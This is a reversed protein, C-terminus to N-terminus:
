KTLLGVFNCPKHTSDLQQKLIKDWGTQCANNSGAVFVLTKNALGGVCVSQTNVVLRMTLCPVFRNVLVMLPKILYHYWAELTSDRGFGQRRYNIGGAGLQRCDVPFWRVSRIFIM